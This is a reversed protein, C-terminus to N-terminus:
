GAQPYAYRDNGKVPEVFVYNREHQPVANRGYRDDRWLLRWTTPRGKEPEEDEEFEITPAASGGHLYNMCGDLPRHRTLREILTAPERVPEWIGYHPVVQGTPVLVEPDALPVPPLDKQELWWKILSDGRATYSPVDSILAPGDPDSRLLVVGIDSLALVCEGMATKFEELRPSDIPGFGNRGFMAGIYMDDWWLVRSSGERFRGGSGLGDFCGRDGDKLRVLAADLAGQALLLDSLEKEEITRKMGATRQEEEYMSRVLEVFRQHYSNLRQWATLSSAQELWRFLARREHETPLPYAM